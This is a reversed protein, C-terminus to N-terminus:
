PVQNSLILYEVPNIQSDMLTDFQFEFKNDIDWIRSNNNYM